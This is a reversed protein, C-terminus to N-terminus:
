SELAGSLSRGKGAMEWGKDSKDWIAYCYLCTAHQYKWSPVYAVDGSLDFITLPTEKFCGSDLCGLTPMRESTKQHNAM